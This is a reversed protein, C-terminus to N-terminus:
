VYLPVEFVNEVPETNKNHYDAVLLPVTDKRIRKIKKKTPKLDFSYKYFDDSLLPRIKNLLKKRKEQNVQSEALALATLSGILQINEDKNDLLNVVTRELGKEENNKLKNISELINDVFKKPTQLLGLTYKKLDNIEFGLDDTINSIGAGNKNLIFSTIDRLSSTLEQLVQNPLNVISFNKLFSAAGKKLGNKENQIQKLLSDDEKKPANKFEVHVRTIRNEASNEHVKISTCYCNLVGLIPHILEGSDKNSCANILLDRSLKSFVFGSMPYIFAEKGLLETESGEKNIFEHTIHKFEHTIECSEVNFWINKFSARM